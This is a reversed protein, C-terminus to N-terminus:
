CYTRVKWRGDILSRRVHIFCVMCIGEEREGDDLFEISAAARCDPCRESRDTV